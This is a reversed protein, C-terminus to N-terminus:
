QLRRRRLLALLGLGGLLSTSPEPIATFIFEGAGRATNSVRVQDILGEINGTSSRADNGVGYITAIGALDATMNFSGIENAETRADDVRTWYLKLNDATNQTGNYAVAVHFWQNAVWADDGTTPITVGYNFLAGAINVFELAPTIGPGSDGDGIRFQFPRDTVGGLNDMSFIQQFGVTISSVNIMAEFSFAGGAGTVTSVAHTTASLFGAAAAANTNGANGYGTFSANGLTAGSGKVLAVGGVTAAASTPTNNAENFQWLHLTGAETGDYPAIIAASATTAFAASIVSLTAISRLTKSNNLIKM